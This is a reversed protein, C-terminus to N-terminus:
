FPNSNRLVPYSNMFGPYPTRLFPRKFFSLFEKFCSLFDTFLAKFSLIPIGLHGGKFFLRLSPYSKGLFAKFCPLVGRLFGQLSLGQFPYSDRLFSLFDQFLAKSVKFSLFYGKFLAKFFSLVGKFIM